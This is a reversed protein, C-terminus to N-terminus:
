TEDQRIGAAVRSRLVNRGDSTALSDHGEVDLWGASAEMDFRGRLGKVAALAGQGLLLVGLILPNM